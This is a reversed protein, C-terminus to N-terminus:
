RSLFATVAALAEDRKEHPTWHGADPWHVVEASACLRASADALAPVGSKDRDGWLVLTPVQLSGPPPMAFEHRLLARRWNLMATLAGPRRWAKFYAALTQPPFAAALEPARFPDALARFGGLRIAFEPLWSTRLAAVYGGRKKREPDDRVFARWVAPHPANFVAMRTLRDPAAGALRWAVSAGWDHAVLAFADARLHDALSLIDRAVLDVDYAFVGAPKDSLNCGRMDPAVVHYGRAALPELWDRWAFWFEPFGHLLVLLPHGERGAEAVHLIVGHGPIRSFRLTM